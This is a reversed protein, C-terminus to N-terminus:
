NNASSFTYFSHVSCQNFVWKLLPISHVSKTCEKDVQSTNVPFKPDLSMLRIYDNWCLMVPHSFLRVSNAGLWCVVTAGSLKTDCTALVEGLLCCVFYMLHAYAHSPETGYSMDFPRRLLRGFSGWAYTYANYNTHRRSSFNKSSTVCFHTTSCHYLPMGINRGM